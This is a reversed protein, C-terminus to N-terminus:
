TSRQFVGGGFLGSSRLLGFNNTCQFLGFSDRSTFLIYIYIYVCARVPLALGLVAVMKLEQRLLSLDAALASGIANREACLSGTPM